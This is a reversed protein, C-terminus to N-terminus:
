HSLPPERRIQGFVLAIEVDGDNHFLTLGLHVQLTDDKFTYLKFKLLELTCSAHLFYTTTNLSSQTTFILVTAASENYYITRNTM